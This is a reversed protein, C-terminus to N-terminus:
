KPGSDPFDMFLRKFVQFVQSLVTILKYLLFRKRKLLNWCCHLYFTSWYTQFLKWFIRVNWKEWKMEAKWSLKESNNKFNEEKTKFKNSRYIQLTQSKWKSRKLKANMKLPQVFRGSFTQDRLACCKTNYLLCPHM